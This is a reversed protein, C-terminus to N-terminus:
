NIGHHCAASVVVVVVVVLDLQFLMLRRIQHAQHHIPRPCCGPHLWVSPLKNVVDVQVITNQAGGLVVALFQVCIQVCDIISCLCQQAMMLNIQSAELMVLKLLLLVVKLPAM